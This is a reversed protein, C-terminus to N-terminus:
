YGYKKAITRIFEEDEISMRLRSGALFYSLKQWEEELINLGEKTSAYGDKTLHGTEKLYSIVEKIEKGNCSNLFEDVDIDFNEPTFTPM